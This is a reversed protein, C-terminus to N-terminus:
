GCVWVNFGGKIAYYVTGCSLVACYSEDSHDCKLIEDVNELMVRPHFPYPSRGKSLTATAASHQYAMVSNGKAEKLLLGLAVRRFKIETKCLAVFPM